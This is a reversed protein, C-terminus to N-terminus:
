PRVARLESEGTMLNDLAVTAANPSIRFTRRLLGNSLSVERGDASRTVKALFGSPEIMWDTKMSPAPAVGSEQAALTGAATNLAGASLAGVLFNRRDFRM